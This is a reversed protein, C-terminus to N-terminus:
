CVSNRSFKTFSKRTWATTGANHKVKSVIKHVVAAVITSRMALTPCPMTISDCSGKKAASSPELCISKRIEMLTQNLALASGLLLCLIVLNLMLKVM